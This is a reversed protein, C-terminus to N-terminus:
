DAKGFPTTPEGLEYYEAGEDTQMILFRKDHAPYSVVDIPRDELMAQTFAAEARALEAVYRAHREAQLATERARRAEAEVARVRELERKLSMRGAFFSATVLMLLLLSRLSFQLWPRRSRREM